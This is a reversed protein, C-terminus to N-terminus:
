NIKFQVGNLDIATGSGSSVSVVGTAATILLRGVAGNATVGFFLNANPRYEVPLTCINGTTGTVTGRLRVVGLGDLSWGAATYPAGFENVFDGSFTMAAWESYRGVTISSSKNQGRQITCLAYPFAEPPEIHINASELILNGPQIIQYHTAGALFAFRTGLITLGPLTMTGSSTLRFGYLPDGGALIEGSMGIFTFPGLASLGDVTGSDIQVYAGSYATLYGGIFSWSGVASAGQIFICAADADTSSNIFLPRYFTNDLNSSTTLTLGSTLADSIGTYFCYKAGGGYLWVQTDIWQNDESAISYIPALSYHGYVAVRNIKHFGASAASSRGLLLGTKPVAGSGAEISFDELTCSICGKLSLVASGTHAGWLSTVGQRTSSLGIYQGQGKLGVSSSMQVMASLKLQGAPLEVFGGISAAAAIALDLAAKIDYVLTGAAIDALQADTLFRALLVSPQINLDKQLTRAIAGSLPSLTGVLTAGTSAALSALVSAAADGPLNDQTWITSDLSDKVVIKYNAASFFISAEGRSDLIVPNTNPTGAAATTYTALPTTTGAAYTYVKGGVLPIGGATFYQQKGQPMLAAM